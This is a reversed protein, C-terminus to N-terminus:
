PRCRLRPRSASLAGLATRQRHTEEVQEFGAESVLAPLRGAVNDATTEFGDLLQVPLFAVRM